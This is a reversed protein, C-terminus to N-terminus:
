NNKRGRKWLIPRQVTISRDQWVSASFAGLGGVQPDWAKKGM